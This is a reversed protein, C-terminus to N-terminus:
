WQFFSQGTGSGGRTASSGCDGQGAEDVAGTVESAESLFVSGTKSNRGPDTVAKASRKPRRASRITPTDSRFASSRSPLAAITAAPTATSLNM